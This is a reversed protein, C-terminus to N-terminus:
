RVPYIQTHIIYGDDTLMILKRDINGALDRIRKGIPIREYVRITNDTTLTMKHIAEDKLSAAYIVFHDELTESKQCLLPGIAISPVWSFIPKTGSSQIGFIFKKNATKPDYPFGYTSNPWGYDEGKSIINIEDGGNPGQESEFLNSNVFCLGQPNRHGSSLIEAIGNVLNLRVIVGIDKRIRNKESGTWIEANGVSFIATNDSEFIVRGGSGNLNLGALSKFCKPM